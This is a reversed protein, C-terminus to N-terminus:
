AAEGAPYYWSDYIDSMNWDYDDLWDYDIADVWEDPVMDIARTYEVVELPHAGAKILVEVERRVKKSTPPNLRISKIARKRAAESTPIGLERALKHARALAKREARQIKALAEREREQQYLLQARALKREEAIEEPTPPKGILRAM